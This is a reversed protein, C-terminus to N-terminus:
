YIITSIGASAFIRKVDYIAWGAKVNKLEPMEKSQVAKNLRKKAKYNPYYCIQQKNDDFM